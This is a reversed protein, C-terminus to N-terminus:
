GGTNACAPLVCARCQQPFPRMHPNADVLDKVSRWGYYRGCSTCVDVDDDDFDM